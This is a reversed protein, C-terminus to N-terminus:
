SALDGGDYRDLAEPDAPSTRSSFGANFHGLMVEGIDEASLAAHTIADRSVRAILREPTEDERKGFASHAWGIITAM